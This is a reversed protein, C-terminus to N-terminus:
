VFYSLIVKIGSKKANKAFSASMDPSRHASLIKVEYPVGFKKLTAATEKMVPLDSDSGMIVSVLPKKAM